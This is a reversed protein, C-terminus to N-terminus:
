DKLQSISFCYASQFGILGYEYFYHVRNKNFNHNGHSDILINQKNQNPLFSTNPMAALPAKKLYFSLKSNLQLTATILAIHEHQRLRPKPGFLLIILINELPQSNNNQIRSISQISLMCIAKDTVSLKHAFFLFHNTCSQLHRTFTGSPSSGTKLLSRLSILCVM